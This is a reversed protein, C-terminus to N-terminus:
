HSHHGSTAITRTLTFCDVKIPFIPMLMYTGFPIAHVKSLDIAHYIRSQSEVQCVKCVLRDLHCHITLSSHSPGEHSSADTHVSCHTSFVSNCRIIVLKPALIYFLEHLPIHTVNFQLKSSLFFDFKGRLLILRTFDHVQGAFISIVEIPIAHLNFSALFPIAQVQSLHFRLVLFEVKYHSVLATRICGHCEVKTEVTRGTHHKCVIPSNRSTTAHGLLKSAHENVFEFFIIYIKLEIGIM